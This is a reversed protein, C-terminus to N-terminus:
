HNEYKLHNLAQQKDIKIQKRLESFKDFRRNKRLFDIFEIQILKFNPIELSNIIHTEISFNNDTSRIGVFTVSPFHNTKTIFVGTPLTYNHLPKINITPLFEKQGLGQGKLQVGKIKFTHGLFKNALTIKNQMILNRIFHSHVGISDIKIENIIETEFAKQLDQINGRKNKGFKFDYGVIIKKVGYNKLIDIFDDKSLHKIKKLQFIDLLKPSYEIRDFYPTLTSNKEIVLYSDSKNILEKHAIHMGDFGGITTKM